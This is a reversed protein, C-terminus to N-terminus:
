SRPLSWGRHGGDHQGRQCILGDIGGFVLGQDRMVRRARHHNEGTDDAIMVASSRHHSQVVRRMRRRFLCQGVDDGLDRGIAVPTRAMATLWRTPVRCM